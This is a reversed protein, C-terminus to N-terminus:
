FRKLNPNTIIISIDDAFLVDKTDSNGRTLRKCLYSFAIYFLWYSTYKTDELLGKITNVM